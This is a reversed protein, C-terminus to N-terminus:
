IHEHLTHDNLALLEHSVDNIICNSYVTTLEVQLQNLGHGVLVMMWLAGLLIQSFMCTTSFSM